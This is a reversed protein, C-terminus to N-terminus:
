RDISRGKLCSRYAWQPFGGVVKAYAQGSSYAQLILKLLVMQTGLPLLPETPSTTRESEQEAWRLITALTAGGNKLAAVKASYRLTNSCVERMDPNEPLMEWEKMLQDLSAAPRMLEERSLTQQAWAGSAGCVSITAAFSIGFSRRM